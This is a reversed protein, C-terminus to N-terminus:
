SIPFDDSQIAQLSLQISQNPRSVLFRREASLTKTGVFFASFGFCVRDLGIENLPRLGSSIKAAKNFDGGGGVELFLLCGAM